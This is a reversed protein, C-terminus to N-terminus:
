IEPLSTPSAEILDWRNGCLDEFVAVSGYAEHRPAELFRVGRASMAAHDGAFDHTHLFLWVRGGGQRGIQAVQDPTSAKALILATQAGPPAVKVWRKGGGLDTDEVLDFGLVATFWAIAADYDAVLLSIAGLHM